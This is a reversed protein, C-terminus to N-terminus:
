VPISNCSASGACFFDTPLDTGYNSSVGTRSNAVNALIPQGNTSKVDASGYFGLATTGDTPMYVTKPSSATITFSQTANSIGPATSAYNITVNATSTGLNLLNIGTKWTTRNHVVPLSVCATADTPLSGEYAVGQAGDTRYRQSAVVVAVNTASSSLKASGYYSNPLGTTNGPTYFSGMANPGLVLTDVWPGGVVAPNSNTYTITVTTNVAGKNLINVGTTWLNYNKYVLPLIAMPGQQTPGFARYESDIVNLAGTGANRLNQAVGALSATSTVVASGYPGFAAFPATSIDFTYSAYAPISTSTAVAPTTQGLNFLSLYATAASGSANQIELKTNWLGTTHNRYVLPFSLSTAPTTTGLYMDAGGLTYNAQSATAGVPVDSSVVASFKGNPPAAQTPLYFNLGGWAALTGTISGASAGTSDYFQVIVNGPGASLNQIDIGTNWTGQAMAVGAGVFAVTLVVVALILTVRKM